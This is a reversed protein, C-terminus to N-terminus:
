YKFSYESLFNYELKDYKFIKYILMMNILNIMKKIKYIM